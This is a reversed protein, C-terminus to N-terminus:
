FKYKAIEAKAKDTQESGIQKMIASVETMKALDPTWKVGGHPVYRGISDAVAVSNRVQSLLLPSSQCISAWATTAYGGLLTTLRQTGIADGLTTIGQGLAGAIAGAAAGVLTGAAGVVMSVGAGILGIMPAVAKLNEAEVKNYWPFMKVDGTWAAKLGVAQRMAVIAMSWLAFQDTWTNNFQTSERDMLYPGPPITMSGIEGAPMDWRNLTSVKKIADAIHETAGVGWGGKEIQAVVDSFNYSELADFLWEFMAPWQATFTFLQELAGWNDIFPKGQAVKNKGYPHDDHYAQRSMTSRGLWHGYPGLTFCHLLDARRNAIVWILARYTNAGDNHVDLLQEGTLVGNLALYAGLAQDRLLATTSTPEANLGAVMLAKTRTVDTGPVRLGPLQATVEGM